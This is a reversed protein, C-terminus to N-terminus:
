LLWEVFKGWLTTPPIFNDKWWQEDEDIAELGSMLDMESAKRLKSGKIIKWGFYIALSLIVGFYATFFGQINFNGDIKIFVAFGNTVTLLVCWVLGIWPTWPMGVGKFPLIDRSVGQAKMGQSFRIWALCMWFYNILAAVSALDIFWGFVVAAGKDVTMYSLCCISLVFLLASLPVGRKTTYGLLKPAHGQCALAHVSRVAVFIFSNGCSTASTIIVANVIHPLVSIGMHQMGIVFPSAGVGTGNAIGDILDPDNSAILIGVCLIGLIYFAALRWFVRRIAKPITKRPNEAEGACMAVFEPGGISFAAIRFVGWFGLFRGLPGDVLYEEMPGPDKWYRFGVRDHHPNGGLMTIFTFIIFGIILIVKGSAFYFEAEGYVKVAFANLCFFIVLCFSVWIAPSTDPFWYQWLGTVAVIDACGFAICAYTYNWGCAVGAAPDIFRDSWHIFSGTVPLLTALEGAAQAVCWVIGCFISYALLCSLPGGMVLARGSGIFLGTGIVGGISILQIHRSKLGRKVDMKGTFSGHESVANVEVDLASKSDGKETPYDTAM